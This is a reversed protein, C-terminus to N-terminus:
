YSEGRVAMVALDAMGSGDWGEQVTDWAARGLGTDCFNFFLDKANSLIVM